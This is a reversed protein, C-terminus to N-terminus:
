QGWNLRALMDKAVLRASETAVSLAETWEGRRSKEDWATIALDIGLRFEMLMERISAPDDQNVIDYDTPNSPLEWFGDERVSFLAEGSPKHVAVAMCRDKADKGELKGLFRAKKGNRARIPKTWDVSMGM